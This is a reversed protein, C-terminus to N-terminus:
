PPFFYNTKKERSIKLAYIKTTWYILANLNRNSFGYSGYHVDSVPWILEPCLQQMTRQPMSQLQQTMEEHKCSLYQAWNIRFAAESFNSSSQLGLITNKSLRSHLSLSPETFHSINQLGLALSPNM